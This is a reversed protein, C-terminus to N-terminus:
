LLPPDFNLVVLYTDDGTPVLCKVVGGNDILEQVQEQLSLGPLDLSRITFARQKM